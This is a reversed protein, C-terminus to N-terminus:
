IKEFSQKKSAFENEKFYQEVYDSYKYKEM